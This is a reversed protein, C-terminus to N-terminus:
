NFGHNVYINIIEDYAQKILLCRKNLMHEKVLFLFSFQKM